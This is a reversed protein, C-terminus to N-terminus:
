LKSSLTQMYRISGAPDIVNDFMHPVDPTIRGFANPIAYGRAPVVVVGVALLIM